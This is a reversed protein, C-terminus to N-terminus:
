GRESKVSCRAKRHSVSQGVVSPSSQMGSGDASLISILCKTQVVVLFSVRIQNDLKVVTRTDFDVPRNEVSRVLVEFAKAKAQVQTAHTGATVFSDRPGCHQYLTRPDSNQPGRTWSPM